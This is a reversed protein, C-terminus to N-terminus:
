RWKAGWKYRLQEGSAPSILQISVYIQNTTQSPLMIKEGSAPSILQISVQWFQPPAPQLAAGWESPFNISHFGRLKAIWFPM